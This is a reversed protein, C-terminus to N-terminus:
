PTSGNIIEAAIAEASQRAKGLAAELQKQVSNLIVEANEKAAFAFEERFMPDNTHYNSAGDYEQHYITISSSTDFIVVSGFQGGKGRTGGFYEKGILSRWALFRRLRDKALKYAEIENSM